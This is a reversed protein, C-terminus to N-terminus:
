ENDLISESLRRQELEAQKLRKIRDEESEKSAGPAQESLPDVMETEPNVRHFTMARKKRELEEQTLNNYFLLPFMGCLSGFLLGITKAFNTVIGIDKNHMQEASLVPFKLGFKEILHGFHIQSQLLVVNTFVNGLAAAGMISLGYVAAFTSNISQGSFILLSTDLVGYVFSPFLSVYWIKVIDDHHIEANGLRKHELYQDAMKKRLADFVLKREGTALEEAVYKADKADRIGYPLEPGFLKRNAIKLKEDELPGIDSITRLTVFRIKRLRPRNLLNWSILKSYM